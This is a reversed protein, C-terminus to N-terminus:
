TVMIEEISALRYADCDKAFIAHIGVEETGGYRRRVEKTRSESDHISNIKNALETFALILQLRKQFESMGDWYFVEGGCRTCKYWDGPDNQHNIGRRDFMWNHPRM